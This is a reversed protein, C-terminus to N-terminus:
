VIKRLFFREQEFVQKEGIFDGNEELSLDCLLCWLDIRGDFSDSGADPMAVIEGEVNTIIFRSGSRTGVAKGEQDVGLYWGYHASRIGVQLFQSRTEIIKILLEFSRDPSFTNSFKVVGNADIRLNKRSKSSTIQYKSKSIRFKTLDLHQQNDEYLAFFRSSFIIDKMKLLEDRDATAADLDSRLKLNENSREEWDDFNNKGELVQIKANLTNVENALDSIRNQQPLDRSLGRGVNRNGHLSEQKSMFGKVKQLEKEEEWLDEDEYYVDFFEFDRFENMQKVRFFGKDGWGLGQSNM